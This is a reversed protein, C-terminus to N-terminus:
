LPEALTKLFASMAAPDPRPMGKPPMEGDRVRDHVKVWEAFVQPAKLDSGLATLDLGGSKTKPGHCPQCSKQVFAAGPGTAPLPGASITLTGIVPLLIFSAKARVSALMHISLSGKM